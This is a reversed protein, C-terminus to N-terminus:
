RRKWTTRAVAHEIEGQSTICHTYVREEPTESIDARRSCIETGYSTEKKYTIELRSMRYDEFTSDPVSELLWEFYRANNVHNNTDIDCRRVSFDKSFNFDKPTEYDSFPSDMVKEEKLGYIGAYEAPIRVPRKKEMNLYIWLSSAKGFINGNSERLLFERTAYFREMGSSWTEVTIKDNWSPYKEIYLNWRSLIWAVGLEKFLGIGCGIAESHSGATDELYNLIALPTAEKLRNIEYYHIDFNKKYTYTSM